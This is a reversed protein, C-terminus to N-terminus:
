ASDSLGNNGPLLSSRSLFLEQDLHHLKIRSHRLNRGRSGSSWSESPSRVDTAMFKLAYQVFRDLSERGLPSSEVSDHILTCLQELGFPLVDAPEGRCMRRIMATMHGRAHVVDAPVTALEVVLASRRVGVCMRPGIPLPGCDDKWPICKQWPGVREAQHLHLVEAPEHEYSGGFDRGWLMNGPNHPQPPVGPSHKCMNM